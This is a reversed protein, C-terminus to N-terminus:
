LKDAIEKAKAMVAKDKAAAGPDMANDMVLKGVVQSKFFGSWIQGIHDAIAVAGDHGSGCTVVVAVKKPTINPTFDGNVFSFFRDELMKLQATELGFYTATSLVLSDANRIADLIATQDDKVVCHGVKKCGYCSQCGKVDKLKNLNFIEAKNGKKKVEEAMALAIAESNGKRPSGIIFVTTSM